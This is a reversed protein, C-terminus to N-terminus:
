LYCTIFSIFFDNEIMNQLIQGVYSKKFVKSARKDTKTANAARSTTQTQCAQELIFLSNFFYAQWETLITSLILRQLFLTSFYSLPWVM